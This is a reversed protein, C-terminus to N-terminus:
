KKMNIAKQIMQDSTTISKANADFAKQMVIMETLARSLQVNSSELAYSHIVAGQVVNGAADTYFFPKGSNLTARFLVNGKSALGQDNQFHYVPLRAAASTKGNSFNAYITGDEAAVYGRLNGAEYGDHTAATSATALNAFTTLGDYGSNPIEPDYPTGFNLQLPTEANNLPPITNASLAGNENFRVEGNQRDIVTYVRHTSEEIYYRQPDYVTDPDYEEYFQMLKIEADWVSGLQPLPLRQTFNMDIVAREGGATFVPMQFHGVNPIDQYTHLRSEVSLPANESPHLASIDINEISWHLTEDLLTSAEIEDGASNRITVVVTQGPRPEFIEDSPTVSGSITAELRNNDIDTTYDNQPITVVVNGKEVTPNLNAKFSANETPRGPVRAEGPLFIDGVPVNERLPISDVLAAIYGGPNEPDPRFINGSVGQVYSGNEATLTQTADVFFAGNRTYLREGGNRVAFWGDGAIALDFTNDTAVISGQDTDLATANVRSGLGTQSDVPALGSGGLTQSFVTAFEVTKGKFGITNVNAINNAITDMGLMYTKSGSVGNYFSRNM